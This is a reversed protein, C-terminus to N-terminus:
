GMLGFNLNSKGYDDWNALSISPNIGWAWLLDIEAQTLPIGANRKRIAEYFLAQEKAWDMKNSDRKDQADAFREEAALQADLILKQNEEFQRQDEEAETIGEERLREFKASVTEETEMVLRRNEAMNVEQEDMGQMYFNRFAWLVPNLMTSHDIFDKAQKHTGELESLRNLAEGKSVEGNNYRDWVLNTYYSSTSARNDAGFWVTLVDIGSILAATKFANKFTILKKVSQLVGVGKIVKPGAIILTGPGSIAVPQAAVALGTQATFQSAIDTRWEGTPTKLVNEAFGIVRKTISVPIDAAKRAKARTVRRGTTGPTIEGRGRGTPRDRDTAAETVARAMEAATAGKPTPKPTPKPTIGLVKKIAKKIRKFVM